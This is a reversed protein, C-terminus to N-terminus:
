LTHSLGQSGIVRGARREGGGPPNLQQFAEPGGGRRGHRRARGLDVHDHDPGAHRARADRQVGRGTSERHQEHVLNVEGETGRPPGRLQGVAPQTVEGAAVHADRPTGGHLTPDEHLDGGRVEGTGQPLDDRHIALKGQEVPNEGAESEESAINEPDSRPRGRTGQRAGARDAGPADRLQARRDIPVTQEETIEVVVALQEVVGGQDGRERPRRRAKAGIHQGVRRCAPHISRRIARAALNHQVDAPLLERKARGADHIGGAHPSAAQILYHRDRWRTARM